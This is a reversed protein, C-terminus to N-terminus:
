DVIIDILPLFLVAYIHVPTESKINAKNPLLPKEKRSGEKKGRRQLYGARLSVVSFVKLM